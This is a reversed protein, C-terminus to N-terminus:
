KFWIERLNLTIDPFSKLLQKDTTCLKISFEKALFVFECDYISCGAAHSLQLVAKSDVLYENGRFQKEAKEIIRCATDIDMLKKKIYFSLVSRFESRWLFPAIWDPDKKLLNEANPNFESKLWYHVIINTDVVIM